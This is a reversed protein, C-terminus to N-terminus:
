SLAQFLRQQVEEDPKRFAWKGKKGIATSVFFKDPHIKFPADACFQRLFVYSAPDDVPIPIVVGLLFQILGRDKLRLLYWTHKMHHNGVPPGEFEPHWQMAPLVSEKWAVSAEFELWIPDKPVKPWDRRALLFNMLPAYQSPSLVWDMSDPVPTDGIVQILESRILRVAPDTLNFRLHLTLGKAEFPEYYKTLFNHTRELTALMKFPRSAAGWLNGKTQRYVFM